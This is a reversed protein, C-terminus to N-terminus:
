KIISDNINKYKEEESEPYQTQHPMSLDQTRQFQRPTEIPRRYQNPRSQKYPNTNTKKSLIFSILPGFIFVFGFIIFFNQQTKYKYQYRNRISTNIADQLRIKSKYSSSYYATIPYLYGEFDELEVRYTTGGKSSRSTTIVAQKLTPISIDINKFPPIMSKRHIKGQVQTGTPNIEVSIPLFGVIFFYFGIIFFLLLFLKPSQKKTQM